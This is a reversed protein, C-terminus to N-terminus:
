LFKFSLQVVGVTDSALEGKIVGESVQPQEM